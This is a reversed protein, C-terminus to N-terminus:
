QGLRMGPANLGFTGPHISITKAASNRAYGATQLQLLVRMMRVSFFVCPIRIVHGPLSWSIRAAAYAAAESDNNM